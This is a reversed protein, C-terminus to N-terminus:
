NKSAFILVQRGLDVEALSQYFMYLEKTKGHKKMLAEFQVRKQHCEKGKQADGVYQEGLLIFLEMPFSSEKHIVTYDLETLLRSLDSGSFYNIHNPPCVWWKNLHYEENAAVQFANYENPIDIVVLGNENLLKDYIVKLTKVPERLHELVNLLLVVDFREDTINGLDEIGANYVQFGKDKLYQYGEPAPELGSVRCNKQEFYILAQGFGFGVDFVSFNDKKMHSACIEYIREYRSENFQKEELQVEKSSDNFQGYNSAYFEKKYFEDVTKPAPIPDARKYSYDPDTIIQYEM